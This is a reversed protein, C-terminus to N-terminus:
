TRLGNSLYFAPTVTVSNTKMTNKLYLSAKMNPGTMWLGGTASQPLTKGFPRAPVLKRDLPAHPALVKPQQACCALVFLASTFASALIREIPGLYPNGPAFPMPIGRPKPRFHFPPLPSKDTSGDLTL